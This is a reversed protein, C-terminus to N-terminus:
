VRQFRKFCRPVRRFDCSVGQSRWRISSFGGSVGLFDRYFLESVGSVRQFVGSIEESLGSIDLSGMFCGSSGLFDKRGRSVDM